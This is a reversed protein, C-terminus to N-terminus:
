ADEKKDAVLKVAKVLKQGQAQKLAKALKTPLAKILAATTGMLEQKTPLKSIQVVGKGDLQQGDFTGGIIQSPDDQKAAKKVYENWTEVTTRMQDEPVFFFYNSYELVSEEALFQPYDEAARKYLTNKACMVKVTEPFKQRMGNMENVTIRDTRVAFMLASNGMSEKLEDIVLQKKAYTEASVMSIAPERLQVAHRTSLTSPAFGESSLLLSVAALM